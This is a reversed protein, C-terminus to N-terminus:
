GGVVIDVGKMSIGAAPPGRRGRRGAARRAGTAGASQSASGKVWVSGSMMNEAVGVGVNGEVVVDASQNM